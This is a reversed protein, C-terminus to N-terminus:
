PSSDTKNLAWLSSHQDLRFVDECFCGSYKVVYRVVTVWGLLCMFKIMVCSMEAKRGAQAWISRRRSAKGPRHSEQWAGDQVLKEREKAQIVM